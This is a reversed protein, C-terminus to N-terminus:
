FAELMICLGHIVKINNTRCFHIAEESEAGPQMWIRKIGKERCEKVINETVRPPTVLDVVDVCIPIDKVSRYCPIGEVDKLHPNVAYVAYGKKKLAKLIKYAYKTEDKFSGAVAFSKLSLYEKILNDM